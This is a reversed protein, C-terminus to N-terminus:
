MAPNALIEVQTNEMLVCRMSIMQQAELAHQGHHVIMSSNVAKLVSNVQEVLQAILHNHQAQVLTHVPQAHSSHLTSPVQQVSTDEQAHLRHQTQVKVITELLVLTVLMKLTQNHQLARRRLAQQVHINQLLGQTRMRHTAGTGLHARRVLQIQQTAQEKVPTDQIALYVIWQLLQDSQLLLQTHVTHANRKLLCQTYTEKVMVKLLLRVSQTQKM